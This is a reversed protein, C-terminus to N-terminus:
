HQIRITLSAFKYVKELYLLHELINHQQIVNHKNNANLYHIHDMMKYGNYCQKVMIQIVHHVITIIMELVKM